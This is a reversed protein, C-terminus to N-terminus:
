EMLFTKSLWLSKDLIEIKRELRSRGGRKGGQYDSVDVLGGTEFDPYIKVKKGQLLKISAQILEVFNHPM